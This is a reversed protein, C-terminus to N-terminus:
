CLMLNSRKSKADNIVEIRQAALRRTAANVLSCDLGELIQDGANMLVVRVRSSDVYPYYDQLVEFIM